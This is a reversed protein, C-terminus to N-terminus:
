QRFEYSVQVLLNLGVLGPAASVAEESDEGGGGYRMMYARRQYAYADAEDADPTSQNSLARIPGLQGGAAKALREAGARAKGLADALAKARVDEPVRAVFLFVPEGPRVPANGDYSGSEEMAEQEELSASKAQGLDAARIKDQLETAALLLEDGTKGALSWEAKVSLTVKVPPNEATKKPSKQQMRSRLMREMQRQRPDQTGVHPDSFEVSKDVPGLAVLKQQAAARRTKLAELADKMTKGEATLEITVRMSDAPRKVSAVGTSHIVRDDAPPAARSAPAALAALLILTLCCQQSM